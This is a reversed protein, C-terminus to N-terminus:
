LKCADREFHRKKKKKWYKRGERKEGTEIQRVDMSRPDIRFRFRPKLRNWKQIEFDGAIPIGIAGRNRLATEIQM